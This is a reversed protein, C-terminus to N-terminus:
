LASHPQREKQEFWLRIKDMARKELAWVRSRHIKNGSLNILEALDDITLPVGHNAMELLDQARETM